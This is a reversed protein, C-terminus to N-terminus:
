PLSMRVRVGCVLGETLEPADDRLLTYTYFNIIAIDAMSLPSFLHVGCLTGVYFVFFCESGYDFVM